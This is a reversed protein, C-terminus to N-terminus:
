SSVHQKWQVLNSKHIRLHRSDLEFRGVCTKEREQMTIYKVYRTETM